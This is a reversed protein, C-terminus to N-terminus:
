AIAGESEFANIDDYSARFKDFIFVTTFLMIAYLLWSVDLDNINAGGSM